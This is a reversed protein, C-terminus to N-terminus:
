APGRAANSPRAPRGTPVWEVVLGHLRPGAEGADDEPPDVFVTGSLAYCRQYKPRVPLQTVVNAGLHEVDAAAWSASETEGFGGPQRGWVFSVDSSASATTAVSVLLQLRRVRLQDVLGAEPPRWNEVEVKPLVPVTTSGDNDAHPNANVTDRYQLHTDPDGDTTLLLLRGGNWTLDRFTHSHGHRTVLWRTRNRAYDFTFTNEDDESGDTAAGMVVYVRQL